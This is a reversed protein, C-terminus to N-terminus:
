LSYHSCIVAMKEFMICSVQVIIILLFISVDEINKMVERLNILNQNSVQLSM